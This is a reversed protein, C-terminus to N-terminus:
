ETGLLRSVEEALAIADLRREEPLPKGVHMFHDPAPPAGGSWETGPGYVSFTDWGLEQPDEFGLTQMFLRAVEDDDTWFHVARPDAVTATAQVADAETEKDLMPGWVVFVRLDEDNLGELVYRHVV